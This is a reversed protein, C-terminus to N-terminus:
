IHLQKKEYSNWGFKLPKAGYVEMLQHFVPVMILLISNLLLIHNEFMRFLRFNFKGNEPVIKTEMHNNEHTEMYLPRYLDSDLVM